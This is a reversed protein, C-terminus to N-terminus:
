NVFGWFIGLRFIFGPYAYNPAAMNNNYFGFGGAGGFQMTNLNEARVFTTFSRIRFNLFGAIEPFKMKITQEDQYFFQSQLPSYNDAKYATHYKVEFGTVLNLNKFGLNGEYAIRNFTFLSPINVPGNGLLQNYQVLLHWHWHKSLRFTKDGSIQLVNFLGSEQGAKYYDRFYALNSVLFYSASLRWAKPGNELLGFIRTINEKNLSPQPGFSYSSASNFVFSPTRNVNQIGAAIYGLKKSLLRKVSALVDYDGSNLGNIYLKGVAEIDWKQNRSRNRYEGHAFLNYYTREGDDFKGKLNQLAIGAKLFQQPNKAEPFSYISFDNVVESWREDIRFTDAPTAAFDYHRRYFLTDPNSDLFQYHYTNYQVTYEMRFRPYFLPIVTSDTVISDKKGLDYQQRLLFSWEKQRNGTNLTSNLFSQSTPVYNGLQVPITTREKFVTTNGLYDQDDLMGGNENAQMKNGLAVFYLNYRRNKSNYNTNFLYRNHNTNQNKFHGPANFLNFQFAFNWNPRVNQTHMLHIVQEARSGLMYGLESYPRTTQYFKVKDMRLKYVDFAHFGPDWGSKMIPQFGYSRSAAGFNGLNMYDVPIPWRVRFDRISSDMMNLRSTDLTRFRITISDENNDRKRLSDQGGSGSPRFGGAGPIRGLPNQGLATATWGLLGLLSIYVM